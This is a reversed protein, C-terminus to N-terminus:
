AEDENKAEVSILNVNNEVFEEKHTVMIIQRQTKDSIFNLFKSAKVLYEKSLNKFTEDLLLPGKIKPRKLELIVVRLALSLINIIGGAECVTLDHFEEFNESKIKFKAVPLNGRKGFEVKLEKNEQYIFKLAHSVLKEFTQKAQEKTVKQVLAMVESSKKLINVTTKHESIQGRKHELDSQANALQGCVNNYTNNLSMVKKKISELNNIM